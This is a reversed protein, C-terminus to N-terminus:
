VTPLTVTAEDANMQQDLAATFGAAGDEGDWIRYVANFRGTISPNDGGMLWRYRRADRVLDEAQEGWTKRYDDWSPAPKM